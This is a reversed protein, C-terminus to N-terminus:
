RAQVSMQKRKRARASACASQFSTKTRIDQVSAAPMDDIFLPAEGLEGMAASMQRWDADTPRGHLIKWTDLRAQASIFRNVLEEQSSELSFIAVPQQAHVAAHLAVNLAFSTNGVSPRAALLVLNGDQLGSLLGDLQAFGTPIGRMGDPTNQLTQHRDLADTLGAGLSIFRNTVRCNTLALLAGETDSIIEELPVTPDHARNALAHTEQMLRRRTYLDTVMQAYHEVNRGHPVALSLESVYGDGGVRDLQQRKTLEASLTLLDIPEKRGWLSILAAYILEHNTHYFHESKLTDAIKLLSTPDLLIAGLVAREADLNFPLTVAVDRDM